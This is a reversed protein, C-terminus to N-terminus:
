DEPCGSGPADATLPTPDGEPKRSARPDGPPGNFGLFEPSFKRSGWYNSELVLTDPSTYRVRAQRKDLPVFTSHTAMFTLGTGGRLLEVPTECRTLRSWLVFPRGWGGGHLGVGCRDVTCQLLTTDRGVMLGARACDQIRSREVLLMADVIREGVEREDRRYAGGIGVDCDEIVCNYVSSPRWMYDVIGLGVSAGRISLDWAAHAGARLVLGKWMAKSHLEVRGSGAGFVKLGGEVVLTGERRVKCRTGRQVWLQLEDPILLPEGAGVVLDARDLVVIPGGAGRELHEKVLELNLSGKTLVSWGAEELEERHAALRGALPPEPGDGVLNALAVLSSHTSRLAHYQSEFELGHRSSLVEAAFQTAAIGESLAGGEFVYRLSWREWKWALFMQAENLKHTRLNEDEIRPSTLAARVLSKNTRELAEETEELLQTLEDWGPAGRERAAAMAAPFDRQDFALEYWPSESSSERVGLCGGRLLAAELELLEAAALPAERDICRAALSSLLALQEATLGDQGLRPVGAQREIREFEQQAQSEPWELRCLERVTEQILEQCPAGLGERLDLVERLQRSSLADAPAPATLCLVAVSAAALRELVGHGTM